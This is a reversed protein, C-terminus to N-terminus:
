FASRAQMKQGRGLDIARCNSRDGRFVSTTIWTSGTSITMLTVFNELETSTRELRLYVDSLLLESRVSALEFVSSNVRLVCQGISTAQPDLTVGDLEIGTCAGQLVCEPMVASHWASNTCQEGFSLMQSLRICLTLFEM